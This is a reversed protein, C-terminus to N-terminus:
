RSPVTMFDKILNPISNDPRNAPPWANAAYVQVAVGELVPPVKKWTSTLTVLVPVVVRFPQVTVSFKGSCTVTFLAQFTFQVAPVPVSKWNLLQQLQCASAGPCLVVNPKWPLWSPVKIAGLQAPSSPELLPEEELLLELELEELEELLPQAGVAIV